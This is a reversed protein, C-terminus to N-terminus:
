EDVEEFDVDTAEIELVRSYKEELQKTSTQDLVEAASIKIERADSYGEHSNATYFIASAPSTDNDVLLHEAFANLFAMCQQLEKVVEPPKNVKGSKWRTMTSRDVGLAVCFDAVTPKLDNEACVMLFEDFRRHIQSANDTDIPKKANLDRLKSIAMIRQANKGLEIPKPNLPKRGSGQGGM